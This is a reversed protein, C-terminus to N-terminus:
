AAPPVVAKEPDPGAFAAISDLSDFLMITIFEVEDDALRRLLEIARFGPVNRALIGPFITSRLLAEYARRCEGACDM